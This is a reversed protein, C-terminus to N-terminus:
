KEMAKITQMNEEIIKYQELIQKKFDESSLHIVEYKGRAAWNLFEPDRSTKDAAGELVKIVHAPTKPPAVIGGLGYIFPIQYGKEMLGPVNEYGEVVSDSFKILARVKGARVLPLVTTAMGIVVDIHKGAVQTVADTGTEFPVWNFNVGWAKAVALANLHTASGLGSIGMSLAKGKAATIFEEITKWSESNVILVCSRKFYGYVPVFDKTVYETKSLYENTIQLPPTIYILTYGDPESKAAKTMGIKGGAGPLNDIVLSVPLYKKMYLCFNRIEQDGGAGGPWSSIFKITKNPYDTAGFSPGTILLPLCHFLGFLVFVIVFRKRIQM